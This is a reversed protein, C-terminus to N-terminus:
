QAQKTITIPSAGTNQKQNKGNATYPLSREVWYYNIGTTIEFKGQNNHM